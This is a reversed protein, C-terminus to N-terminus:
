FHQFVSFRQLSLASATEDLLCAVAVGDGTIEGDQSETKHGVSHSLLTGTRKTTRLIVHTLVGSPKSTRGAHLSCAALAAGASNAATVGGLKVSQRARRGARALGGRVRSMRSTGAARKTFGVTRSHQGSKTKFSHVQPGTWSASLPARGKRVAAPSRETVRVRPTSPACREGRGSALGRM